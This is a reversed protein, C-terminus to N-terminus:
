TRAADDTTATVNPLFWTAMGEDEAREIAQRDSEERGLGATMKPTRQGAGTGATTRVAAHNRELAADLEKPDITWTRSFGPQEPKPHLHIFASVRRYAPFSLGELLEEDTEVEYAGAPLVEDLEGLVFPTTFTVTNTITRITM